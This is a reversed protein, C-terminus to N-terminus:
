GYVCKIKFGSDEMSRVWYYFRELNDNLLDKYESDPTAYAMEILVKIYEKIPERSNAIMLSVQSSLHVTHFTETLLVDKKKKGKVKRTAIFDIDMGM